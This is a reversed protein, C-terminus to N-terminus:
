AKDIGDMAKKEIEDMGKNVVEAVVVTIVAEAAKGAIEGIIKNM